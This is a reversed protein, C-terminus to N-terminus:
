RTFLHLARQDTWHVPYQAIYFSGKKLVDEKLGLSVVYRKCSDKLRTKQRDTTEGWRAINVGTKM